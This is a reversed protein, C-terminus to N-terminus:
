LEEQLLLASYRGLWIPEAPQVHLGNKMGPGGWRENSSDFLVRFFSEEREFHAESNDPSFNLLLVVLGEATARTLAIVDEDCEVSLQARLPITSRDFELPRDEPPGLVSRITPEDPPIAAITRRLHLMERYCARMLKGRETGQSSEFTLRSREFAERSQPDPIRSVDFFESFERQRGARVAEILGPDSHSVFYEFPATEGYEEGMFLMPTYPGLLISAALLKQQEFDLRTALRDGFPRNGIQDHNQSYAIFQRAACQEASNGFTRKHYHSYTRSLVYAEALAKRIEETTGFDKYYADREGTMRAHLAHHLDDLWEADVGLGGRSRPSIVRSDNQLSEAIVIRKRGSRISVREAEETLESLVHVASTDLMEHVADLRVGDIEFDELWYRLNEIFFARVHDSHPGDFNFAEGWPTSYQTTFYPGFDRFYNGEPGLHNYVLDLYVAIGHKHASGVFRALGDPGGYATHVAFPYVGDYGWNRRGPFHAVPMLEVANIGLDKLYALRSAAADFTGETTFTGTHVEYLVLDRLQPPNWADLPVRIRSPDIVASPGHVGRPQRRSAPDPRELTSDLRYFYESGPDIDEVTASWYGSEDQEMEIFREGPTVVHVEMKTRMPAWVRFQTGTSPSYCSGIRM